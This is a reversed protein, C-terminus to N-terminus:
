NAGKLVKLTQVGNKGYIRIFYVGSELGSTEITHIDNNMNEQTIRLIGRCDFLEIKSIDSKEAELFLNKSFPNPYIVFKSKTLIASSIIKSYEFSEDNDIMKLRYYSTEFESSADDTFAYFKTNNSNGAAKTEGIKRWNKTNSSKEIEFRNSNVETSTAWELKNAKENEGLKFYQLSVPLPEPGFSEDDHSTIYSFSPTKVTITNNAEDLVFNEWLRKWSGDSGDSSKFLKLNAETRGTLDEPAYKFKILASGNNQPIVQYSRTMATENGSEFAANTNRIVTTEGMNDDPEIEMGINAFDTNVNASLTKTTELIGQVFHDDSESLTASSRLTIKNSASILKGSSVTLAGHIELDSNLSVSPSTGARNVTFNNLERFNEIFPITGFADNGLVILNSTSSGKLGSGTTFTAQSSQGAEGITLTFGNLNLVSQASNFQIPNATKDALLNQNMIVEGASKNIVMVNIELPSNNANINQNNGGEFFVARQNANFTGNDNFDGELKLDGGISASLAVTGNNVFDGKVKLAATMQSINLSLTSGADVTLNGSCEREVGTGNNGLNLTTNGSIQVHHPYGNGSTASWEIGRGYTGGTNYRLTSSSGYNPAINSFGGPNLELTGNIIFAGSGSIGGTSSLTRDANVSLSAGNAIFISPATYNDSVVSTEGSPIRHKSDIKLNNFYFNGGDGGANAVYFRVANINGSFAVSGTKVGFGGDGTTSSIEYDLGSITQTIEIKLVVGNQRDGPAVNWSTMGQSGGGTWSYGAEIINLNFVQSIGEGGTYLNFGKSGNDWQFSISFSLVDGIALNDFNRGVNSFGGAWMGFSNGSVDLVASNSANNSTATGRFFGGNNVSSVWSGFGFGNSGENPFNATSYNSANDSGFVFVDTGFQCVANLHFCLMLLIIYIKQFNLPRM